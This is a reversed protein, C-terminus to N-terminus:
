LSCCVRWCASLRRPPIFRDFGGRCPGRVFDYDRSVVDVARESFFATWLQKKSDGTSSSIHALYYVRRLLLALESDSKM